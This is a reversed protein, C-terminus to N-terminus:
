SKRLVADKAMASVEVGSEAIRVDTVKLGYPLVGFELSSQVQGLAAATVEKPLQVGQIEVSTMRVAQEAVGIRATAIVPTSTGFQDVAFTLELKDGKPGIRLGPVGTAAALDAYTVMAVGTVKGVPVASVKGRVLDTLPVSVDRLDIVLSNVRVKETRLSQVELRGGEYRGRVAQTLFPFGLLNIAPRQALQEEQQVREAIQSEAAALAARDAAILLGVLVVVVILFRRM